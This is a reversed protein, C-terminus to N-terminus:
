KTPQEEVAEEAERKAAYKMEVTGDQYAIGVKMGSEDEPLDAIYSRVFREHELRKEEVHMVALIVDQAHRDLGYFRRAFELAEPSLAEQNGKKGFAEDISIGYIDCLEFLTNADPQAYGTEWHGVVQPKRNLLTAVQAQTFGAALRAGKLVEGIEQKTM